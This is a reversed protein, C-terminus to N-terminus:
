HEYINLKNIINSVIDEPTEDTINIMLQSLEKYVRVRKKLLEDLSKGPNDSFAFFAPIGSALIRRLLVEKEVNLFVSIGLQSLLKKNRRQLPTRGSTALVFDRKGFENHISQLTKQDLEHFYNEGHKKYIERFSLNKGTTLFYVAEIERDTDIFPIHLKEALVKGVATKGSGKMGILIIKM